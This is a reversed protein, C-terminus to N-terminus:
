AARTVPLAYRAASRSMHRLPAYGDDDVVVFGQVDAEDLAARAQADAGLTLLAERLQQRLGPALGTSAVWPPMPSPGLTAVARLRSALAPRARVETDFVTTDIPAADM